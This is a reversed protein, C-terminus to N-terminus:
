GRVVGGLDPGCGTDAGNNSQNRTASASGRHASGDARSDARGSNQCRAALVNMQTLALLKANAGGAIDLDLLRRRLTGAM